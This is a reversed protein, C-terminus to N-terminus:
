NRKKRKKHISFHLVFLPYYWLGKLWPQHFRSIDLPTNPSSMVFKQNLVFCAEFAANLLSDVVVIDPKLEEIVKKTSNYIEM